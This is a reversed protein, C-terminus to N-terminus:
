GKNSVLEEEKYFPSHHLLWRLPKLLFRFPGLYKLYLDLDTDNLGAFILMFILFFSFLITGRVFMGIVIDIISTSHPFVFLEFLGFCLLTLIMSVTAKGLIALYMKAPNHTYRKMYYFAVPFIALSSILLSLPGAYLSAELGLVNNFYIVLIPVLFIQILTLILILIAAKRGKGLGMLLTCVLFEVGLIAVAVSLLIFPIHAFTYEPGHLFELIIYSLGIYVTLLFVTMNFGNHLTNKMYNDILKYDNMAKAESIAPVQPAGIQCIALAVSAYAIIVGNASVVTTAVGLLGSYWLTQIWLIAGTFIINPITCYVGYRFIQIMEARQGGKFISRLSYPIVKKGYLVTLIIQVIPNLVLMLPLLVANTPEPVLFLIIFAVGGSVLGGAFLIKGIYDFRHVAALNGRFNSHFFNFYYILSMLGFIIGYELNHPFLWIAVVFFIGFFIIGILNCIFFGSKAYILAKEKSDVLSESIYKAISQNFGGAVCTGIINLAMATTFFGLLEDGVGIDTRSAVVLFIWGMVGALVSFGMMYTSSTVLREVSPKEFVDTM